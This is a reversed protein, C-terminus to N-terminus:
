NSFLLRGSFSSRLATAILKLTNSTNQFANLKVTDGAFLKIDTSISSSRTYFYAPTSHQINESVTNGSVLLSLVMQGGATITQQDWTVRADFHYVGTIPATFTTGSFDNGIDYDESIFPIDVGSGGVPVSLDTVGVNKALFAINERWTGVGNIDSELLRGKAQTGDKIVLKGANIEVNGKITKIALGSNSNFEGATGSGSYGSIGTGGNASGYVGINVSTVGTIAIASPTYSSIGAGSITSSASINGNVQLKATPATLTGIGVNGNAVQDNIYVHAGDKGGRIYTDENVNYNFHSAHTSGEFTATGNIGMGRKVYISATPNNTGIGLNGDGTIRMRETFAASRGTGFVIDDSATPTFIQLKGSQVGIGYHEPTLSPIMPDNWLSIKDGLGVNFTLPYKPNFTNIGVNQSLAINVLLLFLTTKLGTKKNM